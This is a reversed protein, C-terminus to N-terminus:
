VREELEEKTMFKKVYIRGSIFCIAMMSLSWVIQATLTEAEACTLFLSFVVILGLITKKLEYIFTKM